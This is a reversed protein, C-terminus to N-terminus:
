QPRLAQSNKPFLTMVVWYTGNPYTRSTAFCAGVAYSALDDRTRFQTLDNPLTRAETITFSLVYRAGPMRVDRADVEDKGAMECAAHRLTDSKTAELPSAGSQLRLADFEAAVEDEFQPTSIDPLRHAFDEVLYFQEGLKVVAIGVANFDPNLMNARHPPSAVLGQHAGEVTCDSALNEGARNLRIDRKALRLTLTPEGSYQHMLQKNEAVLLAHALAAEALRDDWQLAAEGHDARFHNLMQFVDRVAAPDATGQSSSSAAAACLGSVVGILAVALLV